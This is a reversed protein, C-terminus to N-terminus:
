TINSTKPAIFQNHHKEPNQCRTSEDASALTESFCKTEIRRSGCSTSIRINYYAIVPLRYPPPMKPTPHLALSDM